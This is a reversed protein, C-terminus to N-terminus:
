IRTKDGEYVLSMSNNYRFLVPIIMYWPIVHIIYVVTPM